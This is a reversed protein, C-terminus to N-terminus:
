NLECFMLASADMYKFGNKIYFDFSPYDKVTGLVISDMGNRKIFNKLQKFFESGYGKRQETSKICMDEIRFYDGDPAPIKIGLVLGIIIDDIKFIVGYRENNNIFRKIYDIIQNTKYEERWPDVSYARIYLLAYQEIESSTMLSINSM